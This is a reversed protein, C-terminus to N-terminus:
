RPNHSCGSMWSRALVVRSATPVQVGLFLAAFVYNILVGPLTAWVGVVDPPVLDLAFPGGALGVFGGILSVPLMLTRLVRIRERLLLGALLLVGLGGLAVIFAM